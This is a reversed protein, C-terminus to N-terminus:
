LRDDSPIVRKAADIRKRIQAYAGDPDPIDRVTVGSASVNEFGLADFPNFQARSGTALTGLYMSGLGCLRQLLGRTLTVERVDRYAVSKMQRSFFGEVVELHDDFFSYETRAYNLKKGLVTVCPIALFAAVGFIVQSSPGAFGLVNKSIVGFFGGFWVSLFLQIPSQVVLALWPVFRPRKVIPEM